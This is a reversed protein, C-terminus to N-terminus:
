CLTHWARANEPIALFEVPHPRPPPPPFTAHIHCFQLYDFGILSLNTFNAIYM